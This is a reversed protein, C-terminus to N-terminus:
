QALAGGAFPVSCVKENDKTEVKGGAAKCAAEDAPTAILRNSKSLNLNSAAQVSVTTLALGLSAVAVIVFTTPYAKM